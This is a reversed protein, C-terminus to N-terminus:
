TQTEVDEEFVYVAGAGEAALSSDHAGAVVFEGAIAVARGLQDPKSASSSFKATRSWSDNSPDRQYIYTSAGNFDDHYPASVVATNRWVICGISWVL